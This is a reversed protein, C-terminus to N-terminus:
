EQEERRQRAVLQDDVCIKCVAGGDEGVDAGCIDCRSIDEWKGIYESM